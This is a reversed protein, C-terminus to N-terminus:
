PAQRSALLEASSVQSFVDGRVFRRKSRGGSAYVRSLTEYRALPILRFDLSIRTQGETNEETAHICRSDFLLIEGYQMDAPRTASVTRQRFTADQLLREVFLTRGRSHFVDADHDFAASFDQLLAISDALPAIQLAASGRCDTLPMWCNVEYVSHGLMGDNHHGLYRGGEDRYSEVFRVPFHFRMTPTTQFLFEFPLADRALYRLVQLYKAQFAGDTEYFARTIANLGNEDPRQAEPPTHLHLAQLPVERPVINKAVLLRRVEAALDLQEVPLRLHRIGGAVGSPAALDLKADLM